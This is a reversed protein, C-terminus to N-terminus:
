QLCLDDPPVTEGAESMINSNFFFLSFVATPAKKIIKIQSVFFLSKHTKLFKSLKHLGPLSLQYSECSKCSGENLGTCPEQMTLVSLSCM